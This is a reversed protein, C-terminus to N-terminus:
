GVARKIAEALKLRGDPTITEDYFDIFLEGVGAAAAKVADEVLQDQNGAFAMRDAGAPAAQLDVNARAMVVPKVAGKGAAEAAATYAQLWGALYDWNFIVPTLGLGLRAAREIAAPAFAGVVVTPPSQVPKPGIESSPINYFRGSFSVPDPGWVALLAQLWEEFGGGKRKPPVNVVGFEDDSWGQGFGAILRGGSLQDLTALRKGMVVPSHYLADIVSTGLKITSTIGAVFALTDVPDYVNAFASPWPDMYGSYPQLPKTPRLLRELVWVSSLGLKEAEQAVLRINAANATAGMQPLAIGIKM